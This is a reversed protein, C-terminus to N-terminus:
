FEVKNDGLQKITIGMESSSSFDWVSEDWGLSKAVSALTAGAASVTTATGAFLSVVMALALVLSMLRKKM